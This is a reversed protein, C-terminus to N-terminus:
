EKPIVIVAKRGEWATLGIVRGDKVEKELMAEVNDIEVKSM